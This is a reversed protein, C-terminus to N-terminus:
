RDGLAAEITMKPFCALASWPSCNVVEVGLERCQKAATEFAAIWRKFNHGNPNNAGIWNNRGYWHAGSADSMDYGVLLIKRAGWQIALNLAQFGSNGGSGTKGHKHLLLADNTKEIEIRRVEPYGSLGNGAYCVKLGKFDPLGRRHTWWPADCGYVV